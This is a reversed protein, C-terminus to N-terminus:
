NILTVTDSKRKGGGWKKSRATIPPLIDIQLIGVPHQKKLHQRFDTRTEVPQNVSVGLPCDGGVNLSIRNPQGSAAHRM